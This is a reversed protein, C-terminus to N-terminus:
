KQTYQPITTTNTTKQIKTNNKTINTTTNKYYKNNYKYYELIQIM